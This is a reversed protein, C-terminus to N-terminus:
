ILSLYVYREKKLLTFPIVACGNFPNLGNQEQLLQKTTEKEINGVGLTRTGQVTVEISSSVGETEPNATFTALQSSYGGSFINDPAYPMLDAGETSLSSNATDIANKGSTDITYQSFAADTSSVCVVPTDRCRGIIM